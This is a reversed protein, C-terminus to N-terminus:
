AAQAMASVKEWTTAQLSPRALMRAHWERLRKHGGMLPEWEPLGAFFDIQPALTLDASL